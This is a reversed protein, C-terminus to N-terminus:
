KAMESVLENYRMFFVNVDLDHPLPFIQGIARLDEIAEEQGFYPFVEESSDILMKALSEMTPAEEEGVATWHSLIGELKWPTTPEFARTDAPIGRGCGFHFALDSLSYDDLLRSVDLLEFTGQKHLYVVEEVAFESRMRHAFILDYDAKTYVDESKWSQKYYAGQQKRHRRLARNYEDMHEEAWIGQPLVYLDPRYQALHKEAEEVTRIYDPQQYDKIVLAEFDQCSIPGETSVLARVSDLAQIEDDSMAWFISFWDKSEDWGELLFANTAEEVGMELMDPRKTFDHTRHERLILAGEPRYFDTGKKYTAYFLDYDKMTLEKM